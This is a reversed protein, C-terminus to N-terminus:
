NVAESETESPLDAKRGAILQEVEAEFQRDLESVDVPMRDRRGFDHPYRRELKWAMAQWNGNKAAEEIRALWQIVAAGEAEKLQESLEPYKKLWQSLTEFAIGAYSCAHTYPAGLRIATKLRDITEPTYKTPRGAPM